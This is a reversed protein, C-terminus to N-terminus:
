DDEHGKKSPQFTPDRLLGEAKGPSNPFRAVAARVRDRHIASEDGPLPRPNPYGSHALKQHCVACFTDVATGFESVETTQYTRLHACPSPDAVAVPEECLGYPGHQILNLPNGESPRPALTYGALERARLILADVEGPKIPPEEGEDYGCMEEFTELAAFDALLTDRDHHYCMREFYEPGGPALDALIRELAHVHVAQGPRLAVANLDPRRDILDRLLWIDRKLSDMVM